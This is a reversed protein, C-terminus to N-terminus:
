DRTFEHLSGILDVLTDFWFTALFANQFRVSITDSGTITMVLGDLEVYLELQKISIAKM